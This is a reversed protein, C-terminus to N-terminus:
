KKYLKGVEVCKEEKGKKMWKRGGRKKGETV